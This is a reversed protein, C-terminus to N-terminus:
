IGARPDNRAPFVEPLIGAEEAATCANVRDVEPEAFSGTIGRAVAGVDSGFGACDRAQFPRLPLASINATCSSALESSCNTTTM